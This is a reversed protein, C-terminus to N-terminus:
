LYATWVISFVAFAGYEATKVGLYAVGLGMGIQLAKIFTKM